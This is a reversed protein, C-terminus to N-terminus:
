RTGGGPVPEAGIRAGPRHKRFRMAAGGAKQAEVWRLVDARDYRRYRGLAVHPLKGARTADRVWRVPVHLLGAVEDADLLRDVAESM